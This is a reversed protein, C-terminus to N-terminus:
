EGTWVVKGALVGDVVVWYVGAGGVAPRMEVRETGARVAAVQEYAVRGFGDVMQIVVRSDVVGPPMKVFFSGKAPNPWIGTGAEDGQEVQWELPEIQGDARYAEARLLAQELVLM